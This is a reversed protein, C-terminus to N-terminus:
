FNFGLKLSFTNEENIFIYYPQIIALGLVDMWIGISKSHHWQSSVEDKLWVRGYDYGLVLGFKIPLVNNNWNVLPTRLDINHFFASNGLFRNDRYGRLNGNNGLHAYQFFLPDGFVKKYGVNQALILRSNRLLQTTLQFSTSITFISNKDTLNNTYETSLNFGFKSSPNLKRDTILLTVEAEAGVFKKREFQNEAFGLSPDDSVSNETNQIRHAQYKPGFRFHSLLNSSTYQFMPAVEWSTMRVWNYNKNADTLISENGLGFFNVYNPNHFYLNPSFDLKGILDPFLGNYDVNFITQNGPVWNTTITQKAKFPKKRWSHTTWTYGLGIFFDRDPTTGFSFLPLSTNYQFGNRDYENVKLDSSTKDKINQGSLEVGGIDDYVLIDNTISTNTLQDQGEGGIIRIKISSKDNGSVLFQDKGREGYIRIENTISPDFIRDYKLWVHDKHKIIQQVQIKGNSLSTIEFIDDHDTGVIEVEQSLFRYLELGYRDMKDRRSKLNHILEESDISEVEDPLAKISAEIAEDTLNVQLQDITEQWEKMDLDNLFFRDFHKANFALNKVDQVDDVMTKFNKLALTSVLRPIWGVFKYFVQDRDRPIPRYMTRDEEKFSAWRWQDDHRDWDHIWLDFLRSKLTWKQDVFHEKKEKLNQLLDVYGIINESNGFKKYDHWDGDPREELIYLEEPFLENYNGLQNQHKLYVLKPTTYYVDAAESLTPIILAGYPHSASNQDKLIDILALNKFGDPVLKRYDKNISRLIYNRGDGDEMRLSNSAFGGGKKIPTLGGFTTALDIIPVKVPTTWMDRYQSGLIKKKFSGAAFDANAPLTIESTTFPPYSYTKEVESSGETPKRLQTQYSQHLNASTPDVEYFTLWSEDNNYFSIKAFGLCEKAFAADHGQATYTAKSGGGSVVFDLNDHDFYQLGHEHGSAFIGKIQYKKALNEIGKMLKLNDPHSIDQPSLGVKRALPYLSGIIPLPIYLNNIEHLPFIHHKLSFNGGHLGNSYIPHHLFFVLQDNKNNLMIEEITNLLGARSKIDCGNNIKKEKTWDQLWWQSDIFVFVLNKNVKVVEPDGCGNKPYFKVKDKDSYYDKIYDGQRKIYKLGDEHGKNWDHNGPIFYTIGEFDRVAELQVNINIEAQTRSKKDKKPLGKPYINDGLFVVTSSETEKNLIPSLTSLVYNQNTINDHVEGADGILYLTHIPERGPLQLSTQSLLQYGVFLTIITPLYIKIM